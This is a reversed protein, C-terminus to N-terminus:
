WTRMPRRNWYSTSTSYRARQVSGTSRQPQAPKAVKLTEQPKPLADITKRLKGMEADVGAVREQLAALSQDMRVAERSLQEVKGRAAIFAPDPNELKAITQELRQDMDRLMPWAHYALAGIASLALVSLLVGTRAASNQQKRLVELQDAQASIQQRQEELEQLQVQQRQWQNHLNQGLQANTHRIQELLEMFEDDVAPDDAEPSLTAADRTSADAQLNLQDVSDTKDAVPNISIGRRHTPKAM